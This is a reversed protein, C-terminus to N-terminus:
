TNIKERAFAPASILSRKEGSGHIFKRGEKLQIACSQLFLRGERDVQIMYACGPKM